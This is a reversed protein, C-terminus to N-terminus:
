NGEPETPKSPQALLQEQRILVAMKEAHALKRHLLERRNRIVDHGLWFLLGVGLGIEASALWRFVADPRYLSALVVATAALLLLTLKQEIRLRITILMVIMAALSAAAMMAPSYGYTVTLQSRGVLSGFNYHRGVTTFEFVSQANAQGWEQLWREIEPNLPSAVGVGAYLPLFPDGEDTFGEPVGVSTFRKPLWVRWFMRQESVDGGFGPIALNMKPMGFPTFTALELKEKPRPQEFVVALPFAEDAGSSRSVNILYEDGASKPDKEPQATRGAVQVGLIRVGAPFKMRLRQRQSSKVTYLVRYTLPGEESIVTDVLTRTVVTEVVRQIEHKTVSLKLSAAPRYYRYSLQIEAADRADGATAEGPTSLQRPDTPELGEFKDELSLSREKAVAIQGNEREVNAARILKPVVEASSTGTESLKLPEEFSVVLAHRGLTRTHLLVTWPVFGDAPKGKRKEKINPGNIEVKDAIAQPVLLEFTDTGAYQVTYALVARTLVANERVFIKTFIDAVTRTKRRQVSFAVDVPRALYRFSAALTMRAENPVQFGAAALEVPTTPRVGKTKAADTNVEFSEHALLALFGREANTELPEPIPLTLAAASDTRQSSMVIRIEFAGVTRQKLQVNLVPGVSDTIQEHRELAASSVEELDMGAPLRIRVAFVGARQVDYLLRSEIRIRGEELRALLNQVVSVRPVVATAEATLSFDGTYFKYYLGNPRQLEAPADTPAVRTVAKRDVAALNLEESGLLALLGTQRDVGLPRIEGVSFKGAALPRESDIQLTAKTKLPAHLRVNVRKRNAEDAAKWDRLGPIQVDLLREGAPVVFSLQTLEGRLVQYDIRTQTHVVGEGVDVRVVTSAVALPAATALETKARWTVAVTDIAGLTAQLRTKGSESKITPASLKPAIEFDVNAEPVTLDFNTSGAVPGNLALKRGEASRVIPTTVEFSVVHRGRDKLLLLYSGPATAALTGGEVKSIAAGRLPLPLKLWDDTLVDVVLKAQFRALEGEVVGVYDMSSIVAPIPPKATGVGMKRVAEWLAQYEAFPMLVNRADKEFVEALKSYPIYIVHESKSTKAAPKVPAEEIPKIASKAPTDTPKKVPQLAPTVPTDIKSAPTNAKAAKPEPQGNASATLFGIALISALWASRAQIM